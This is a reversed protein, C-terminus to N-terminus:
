LARRPLSICRRRALSCVDPPCLPRPRRFVALLRAGIDYRVHISREPRSWVKRCAACCRGAGPPHNGPAQATYGKVLPCRAATRRVNIGEVNAPVMLGVAGLDVARAMEAAGDESNLLPVSAIFGFRSANQACWEALTDNLARHWLISKERPLGYGYIDPWTAVLQREINEADPWSIRQAATEILRPFFPRVRFGYEFQLAPTAATDAFQIGFKAGQDRVRSILDLPVYHAHIDITM